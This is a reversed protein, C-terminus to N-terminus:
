HPEARRRAHPLIHDRTLPALAVAPIARPDIWLLEAIEARAAPAGTVEVDYVEAQVIWGPENAAPAEFRGLHRASAARVTCGLEERLERTLTELDTEDGSRKGGPQMFAQTGAKRVLLVEGHANWIVAAVIRIIRGPEGTRLRREM